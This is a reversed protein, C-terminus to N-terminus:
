TTLSEQSLQSTRSVFTRMSMSMQQSETLVRVTEEHGRMEALQLATMGNCNEALLNAGRRKLERVVHSQGWFSAWLVPTCGRANSISQVIQKEVGAKCLFKMWLYGVFAGVTQPEHAKEIDAKKDLLYCVTEVDGTLAAGHIAVAGFINCAELNAGAEGLAQVAASRAFAAANIIAQTGLFDEHAVDAGADLLLKINVPDGGFAAWNLARYKTDDAEAKIDARLELLLRVAKGGPCLWSAAMLPTTGLGPLFGKVKATQRANVDARSCVLERVLSEDQSLAAFFLPTWGAGGDDHEITAACAACPSVWGVSSHEKSTKPEVEVVMEERLKKELLFTAPDLPVPPELVPLGSLLTSTQAKLLRLWFLDEKATSLQKEEVLEELFRRVVKEVKYKDCQIEVGDNQHGMECCSFSCHGVPHNLYDQSDLLTCQRDGTVLLSLQNFCSLRFSIEEVQCWGRDQWTLHNVPHGAEHELSPCLVLFHKSYSVYQPISNVASMLLEGAAPNYSENLQPVSFYDYWIYADKFAALDEVPIEDTRDFYLSSFWHLDVKCTGNLVNRLFGQLVRFQKMQPDPHTRGLWQHSVFIVIMGARFQVIKGASLLKDHASLETLELVDRVHMVYMPYATAARLSRIGVPNGRVETQLAM